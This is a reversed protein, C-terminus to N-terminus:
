NKGRSTTPHLGSASPIRIVAMSQSCPNLHIPISISVAKPLMFVYIFYTSQFYLLWILMISNLISKKFILHVLFKKKTFESIFNIKHVCYWWHGFVYVHLVFICCIPKCFCSSLLVFNLCSPFLWGICLCDNFVVCFLIFYLFICNFCTCHLSRIDTLM